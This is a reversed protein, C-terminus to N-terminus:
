LSMSFLSVKPNKPLFRKLVLLNLFKETLSIPVDVASYLNSGLNTSKFISYLNQYQFKIFIAVLLTYFCCHNVWSVRM